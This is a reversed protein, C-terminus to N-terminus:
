KLIRWCHFRSVHIDARRVIRSSLAQRVGEGVDQERYHRPQAAVDIARFNRELAQRVLETTREQKWATGYIFPFCHVSPIVSIAEDEHM